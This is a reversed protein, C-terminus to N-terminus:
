DNVGGGISMYDKILRIVFDTYSFSLRWGTVMQLKRADGIKVLPARVLNKKNEIVYKASNLGFYDLVM